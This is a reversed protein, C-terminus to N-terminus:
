SSSEPSLNARFGNPHNIPTHLCIQSLSNNEILSFQLEQVPKLRQMCYYLAEYLLPYDHKKSEVEPIVCITGMEEGIGAFKVNKLFASKM